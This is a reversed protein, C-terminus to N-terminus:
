KKPLYEPNVGYRAALERRQDDSMGKGKGRGSADGNLNPLPQIVATKNEAIWELQEAPDMKDLLSLIHKPLPKRESELLRSLAAGYKEATAKHPSLQEAETKYQNALKEWQQQQALRAKEAEGAEKLRKAEAAEQQAKWQKLEKLQDNVQKFRDYPIPKDDPPVDTAAANPTSPVVPDNTTLTQIDSM